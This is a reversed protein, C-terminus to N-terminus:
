VCVRRVSSSQGRENQSEIFDMCICSYGDQHYQMQAQNAAILTPEISNTLEALLFGKSPDLRWLGNSCPFENVSDLGTSCITGGTELVFMKLSLQIGKARSGNLNM